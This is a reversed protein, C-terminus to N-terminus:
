HWYYVHTAAGKQKWLFCQRLTITLEVRMREVMQLVKLDESDFPTQQNMNKWDSKNQKTESKQYCM